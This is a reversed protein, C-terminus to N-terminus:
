ATTKGLEAVVRQIVDRWDGVVRQRFLRMTPYWPTDERELNWRWDAVLPLLTWVPRGLAGALHAVATDASVILDLESILAATDAFDAVHPTFDILNASSPPRPEIQLSYCSVGPLHLLPPLEEFPISRRRDHRHTFRGAWAIGIRLGTSKGIRVRWGDRLVPDAHLYPAATRLPEFRRLIWPLSLLPAHFDFPPLTNEDWSKRAVLEVGWDGSSEVLRLLEPPCELIIRSEPARERVLPVYRLFQIADGFGQEAHLLIAGGRISSGDWLPRSFNRPPSPFASCQWRWEHEKWGEEFQGTALLALALTWHTPAAHPRLSLARRCSAIAHEPRGTDLLALGLNASAEANSPNLELATQFCPIAEEPRNTELLVNGLHGWADIFRPDLAVAQRFCSEAEDWRRMQAFCLGRLDHADARHPQVALIQRYIAEAEAFQGAQQRAHAIHFAQPLTITM